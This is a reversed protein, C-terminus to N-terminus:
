MFTKLSSLIESYLNPQFRELKVSEQYIHLTLFVPFIEKPFNTM